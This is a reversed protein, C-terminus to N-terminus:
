RLVRRLIKGSPIRPISDVFTFGGMLWKYKAARSEMWEIIEGDKEVTAELTAKPNRWYGKILTPGSFWQEGEAKPEAVQESVENALPATGCLVEEVSSLDFKSCLPSKALALVISPATTLTTIKFNHVCKLLKEFNCAPMIYSPIGTKPHNAIFATQGAAHYMPMFCITRQRQINDRWSPDLGYAYHTIEVGKPIGTTKSSYHLCCTTSRPDVPQVWHFKEAEATPALLDTWHRIDYGNTRETGTASNHFAYIRNRPLGVQPAAEVAVSLSSNGAIAFAAGSDKLQYALEAKGSAPSAGTFIGGAMLKGKFAPLIRDGPWPGARQLGLAIRKSLLRFDSLTLFNQDPNEANIFIKWRQPSTEPIPVVWHSQISM